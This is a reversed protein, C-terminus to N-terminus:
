RLGSQKIFAALVFTCRHVNPVEEGGMIELSTLALNKPYLELGNIFRGLNHYTGEVVFEYSVPAYAHSFPAPLELIRTAPRSAKIKVGTDGATTSVIEIFRNTEEPEFFQERVQKIREGFLEKQKTMEPIRAIKVTAQTLRNKLQNVEEAKQHNHVLMPLLFFFTFLLFAGVAITNQILTRRDVSAMRLKLDSLSVKPFAPKNM